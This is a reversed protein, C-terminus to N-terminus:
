FLPLRRGVPRAPVHVAVPLFLSRTGGVGRQLGDPAGVRPLLIAEGELDEDRLCLPVPVELVIRPTGVFFLLYPMPADDRIRRALATWAFPQPIFPQHLYCGLGEFAHSDLEHDPNLVWEITDPVFDLESRPMLALAMRALGKYAAIPLTSAPMMEGDVCRRRFAEFEDDLAGAFLSRCEDCQEYTFLSTNGLSPAVVPAPPDSFEARPEAMECFRCVRREPVGLIQRARHELTEHAIIEYNLAFLLDQEAESWDEIQWGHHGGRRQWRFYAAMRVQEPSPMLAPGSGLTAARCVEMIPM